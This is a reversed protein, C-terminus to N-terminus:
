ENHEGKVLSEYLLEVQACLKYLKYYNKKQKICKIMDSELLDVKDNISSDLSNVSVYSKINDILSIGRNVKDPEYDRQVKGEMSEIVAQQAEQSICRNQLHVGGEVEESLSKRIFPFYLFLTDLAIFISQNVIVLSSLFKIILMKYLNDLRASDVQVQEVSGLNGLMSIVYNIQSTINDSNIFVFMFIGVAIISWINKKFYLKVPSEFVVRDVEGKYESEKYKQKDMDSIIEAHSHNEYVISLTHDDLGKLVLNLNNTVEELKERLLPELNDKSLIQNFKQSFYFMEYIYNSSEELKVKKYRDLLKNLYNIDKLYNKFDNTEIIKKTNLM